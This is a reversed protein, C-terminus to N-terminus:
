VGEFYELKENRKVKMPAYDFRIEFSDFLELMNDELCALYIDLDDQTKCATIIAPHLKKEYFLDFAYKLAEGFSANEKKRMLKFGEIIRALAFNSYKSLSVTFVDEVIQKESSYKRTNLYYNIDETTYPLFVKGERESIILVNTSEKQEELLTPKVGVEQINLKTVEEQIDMKDIVTEQVQSSLNIEIESSEVTTKNKELEMQEAISNLENLVWGIKNQAMANDIYKKNNNYEEIENKIFVVQEDFIEKEETLIKELNIEINGLIEESCIITHIIEEIRTITEEVKIKINEYKELQNKTAKNEIVEIIHTISEKVNIQYQKKTLLEREERKIEKFFEEFMQMDQSTM